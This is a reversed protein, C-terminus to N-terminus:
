SYQLSCVTIYVTSTCYMLTSSYNTFSNRIRIDFHGFPLVNKNVFVYILNAM